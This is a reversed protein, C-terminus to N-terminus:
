PQTVLIINLDDAGTATFRLAVINGNMEAATLNIKYMGNGIATVANTTATYSGGDLSKTGSVSL